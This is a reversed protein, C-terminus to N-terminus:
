SKWFSTHLAQMNPCVISWSALFYSLVLHIICWTQKINHGIKSLFLSFYGSNITLCYKKFLSFSFYKQHQSKNVHLNINNSHKTSRLGYIKWVNQINLLMLKYIMAPILRYDFLNQKWTINCCWRWAKFTSMLNVNALMKFCNKKTLRCCKQFSSQCRYCWILVHQKQTLIIKSSGHTCKVENRWILLECTKFAKLLLLRILCSHLM